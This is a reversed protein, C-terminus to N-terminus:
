RALAVETIGGYPSFSQVTDGPHLRPDGRYREILEAEAVDDGADAAVLAAAVEDVLENVSPDADPGMVGWGDWLLLEDKLRHALEMLVYSRVFWEGRVPSAIEVGYREVDVRGARHDRWVEAASLFPSGPGSAMDLPDFPVGGSELEPDFRVWGGGRWTEVVVHDHNWDPHFYTAFGVRSRAPIGHQRLAGVCFLTHDRCCGQVREALPREAALPGSHRSQDAALIRDLWRLHIDDRTSEPLAEAQARYHAIVNRAVASLRVPEAPVEALLPAWGAPDSYASHSAYDIPGGTVARAADCM